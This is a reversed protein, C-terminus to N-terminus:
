PHEESVIPQIDQPRIAPPSPSAVMPVVPRGRADLLGVTRPDKVFQPDYFAKFSTILQYFPARINVNFRIPLKAIQRTIFNKKADTGQRVQDFQVRTVIEGTLPGDMAIRMDGYDLSKLADFAFNAMTSLDKYSLPGVYSVNGGPPRSRLAGGEIRGGENDFVLPLSGDFTGTAAINALEMREVFKAANLGEIRLTYRRVESVGLNLQTPELTLTGDLFPWTAGLMALQLGPRLEYRLEGDAVEIGPNVSAIKLRQDPASVLGLLDTFVLTGSVGKAPGFAAAFDLDDTTFRGTSTVGAEDWAIHGEGRVTGEANAVVGFALRTLQDPQLAHDFTIGNVTLDATGRGSELDHRIDVRTVERGSRPEALVADASILNDRLTLTGDRGALPEFRAEAERDVLRFEGDALTLTGDAFRWAGRADLLDLPVAALRMETGDFSGAIDEGIRATLSALNFRSATAEPGLTVEVERATLAGPAAFGTPGAVIRVPTEGLRGSLDLSSAGAAIKFGGPGSRLIARGQEPCLTLSRRDLTLNALTLGDFAVPMCKRWLALGAQESWNGELPVVLNDASGGPLPGSLRAQGALGVAGGDDQVLVLTPVALRGEGARYEAMSLRLVTGGSSSREMRGAIRPLGAGGTSVNGSLIPQGEGTARAQFRSVALLTTGSRGRLSAQPVVLSTTGKTLRALYTAALRSGPAERRLASRIQGVMPALLTGEAVQQFEALGADFGRGLALDAGELAGDFELRRLSDQGRITGDTKLSGAALSSARLGDATLAYRATLGGRRYTATATGGFKRADLGAYAAAGTELALKAEGGDFAKDATAEVRLAAGSLRTGDPCTLGSLRLPGVFNLREAKTGVMGYLSARTLKCGDIVAQPAIAALTGSFGDHLRGAGQLKVGIPGWESDILGRGDVIAVDLDPLQFPENPKAGDFLMKDLSGFSLEGGRYTGYLRPKVATVQGIAPFGLRYRIAVELREVTLDPHAPDGIVVNSLIQRAPGIKEIDYTASLGNQALQSAIVNDAIKERSGWLLAFALVLVLVVVAAVVLWRPRRPPTRDSDDPDIDTDPGAM